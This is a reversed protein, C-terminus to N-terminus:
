KDAVMYGRGRVTLIRGDQGLKKRLRHVSVDVVNSAGAYDKGWVRRLLTEQNVPRGANEALTYLIEFETPSLAVAKGELFAKEKLGDIRLGGIVIEPRRRAERVRELYRVAEELERVLEATQTRTTQHLRANALAQSVMEGYSQLLSIVQPPFDRRQGNDFLYAVGLREGRAVLPVVLLSLVGAGKAWPPLGEEQEEAAPLALPTGQELAQATVREEGYWPDLKELDLSSERPRLQGGEVLAIVWGPMGALRPLNVAMERVVAQPELVQGLGRAMELLQRARNEVRILGQLEEKERKEELRGHALYGSLLAVLYLFPVQVSIISGATRAERNYTLAVYALSFTTATFLSTQYGRFISYYIIFLPLLIFLPSQVGALALGGGLAATDVLAMFYVFNPSTVRPLLLWGLLLVYLLYVLILSVAPWVPIAGPYLYLGLAALTLALLRFKRTEQETRQVYGMPRGAETGWGVPSPPRSDGSPVLPLGRLAGLFRLPNRM